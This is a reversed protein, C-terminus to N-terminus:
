QCERALFQAVLLSPVPRFGAAGATRENRALRYVAHAQAPGGGRRGVLRGLEAVLTGQLGPDAALDSLEPGDRELQEALGASLIAPGPRLGEWLGVPDVSWPQVSCTREGARTTTVVALADRTTGDAAPTNKADNMARRGLTLVSQLPAMMHAFVVATSATIRGTPLEDGLHTDVLGRLTKALPLAQAAPCFALVDDGGTYVAVGPFRATVIADRQARGVAVLRRSVMRQAEASLRGFSRGLRDLDQMVVAYYPSPARIGASNAINQIQQAAACGATVREVTAATGYERRLREPEWAQPFVWVGLQTALPRLAEPAARVADEAAPGNRRGTFEGALRALISVQDILDDPPNELLAVRYATSAISLTSRVAGAGTNRGYTRKVWGAASLRDRWEHRWAGDPVTVSPLQPALTCPWVGSETLPRFLRSRRRAAVLGELRRWLGLDDTASGTVAAWWLDPFGPTPQPRGFCAEVASEWWQSIAEQVEVAASAGEDAPARFVIKSTVGGSADDLVPFILGYPSEWREAVWQAGREALRQVILSSNAVDATSASETIFRQVGGIGVAVLDVEDM